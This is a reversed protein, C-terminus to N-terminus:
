SAAALKRLAKVIRVLTAFVIFVMVWTLTMSLTAGLKAFWGDLGDINYADRDLLLPGAEVQVSQTGTSLTFWHGARFIVYLIWLGAIALVIEVAAQLRVATPRILGMLDAAIQALVYVLITGHLATWVPAGTVLVDEGHRRFHTLAEFEVLGIWWLLFLSGLVLSIVHDRGPLKRRVAAVAAAGAPRWIPSPMIWAAPLSSFRKLDRISWHTLWRPRIRNHELLAGIVTVAGILQLAM